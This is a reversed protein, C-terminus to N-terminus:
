GKGGKGVKGIGTGGFPLNVPLPRQNNPLFNKGFGGLGAGHDNKMGGLSGINKAFDGAKGGKGGNAHQAVQGVDRKV